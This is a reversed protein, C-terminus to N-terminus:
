ANGPSNPSFCVQKISMVTRIYIHEYDLAYHTKKKTQCRWPNHQTNKKGHHNARHKSCLQFFAACFFFFFPQRTPMMPPINAQKESCSFMSAVKSLSSFLFFSSKKFKPARTEEQGDRGHTRVNRAGSARINNDYVPSVAVRTRAITAASPHKKNARHEQRYSAWFGFSTFQIPLKECCYKYEYSTQPLGRM